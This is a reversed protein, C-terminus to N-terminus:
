SKIKGGSLPSVGRLYIPRKKIACSLLAKKENLLRKYKVMYEDMRKEERNLSAILALVEKRLVSTDVTNYDDSVSDIELLKKELQNQLYEVTALITISDVIMRDKLAQEELRRQVIQSNTM